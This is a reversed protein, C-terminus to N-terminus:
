ATPRRRPTRPGAQHGLAGPAPRVQVPRSVACCASVLCPAAHGAWFPASRASRFRCPAAQRPVAARPKGRFPPTATGGLRQGLIAGRREFRPKVGATVFRGVDSTLQLERKGGACVPAAAMPRRPDLERGGTQNAARHRAGAPREVVRDAAAKVGRVDVANWRFAAVDSQVLVKRRNKAAVSRGPKELM